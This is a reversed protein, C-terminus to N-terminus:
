AASERECPKDTTSVLSTAPKYCRCLVTIAVFSVFIPQFQSMLLSFRLYLLVIGVIM